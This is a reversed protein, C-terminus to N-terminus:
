IQFWSIQSLDSNKTKEEDRNQSWRKDNQTRIWGQSKLSTQTIIDHTVISISVINATLARHKFIVSFTENLM